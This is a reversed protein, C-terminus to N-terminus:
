EPDGLDRSGVAAWGVRLTVHQSGVAFKGCLQARSSTQQILFHASPLSIIGISATDKAFSATM